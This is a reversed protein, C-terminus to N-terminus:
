VNQVAVGTPAPPVVASAVINALARGSRDGDADESQVSVVKTGESVDEILFNDVNAAVVGAPSFTDGGDESIEIVFQAVASQGASPTPITWTVQINALAM